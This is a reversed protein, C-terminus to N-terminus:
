KEASVRELLGQRLLQTVPGPELLRSDLRSLGTIGRISSTLFIEDAEDLDKPILDTELCDIGLNQAMEIVVERTVGPLCGSALPPIFLQGRNVLFVNATASECLQGATNLFLAEQFGLRRAHDLAVLNEAYSACKLGALPSNENRPWPSVCATLTESSNAVPLASMWLLRDAGPTLDDLPGSGATFTLRIKARGSSLDNLALLMKAKGVFDPFEFDWGLKEASSRLRSLHRDMFVPVGDLALITEFLGLGLITGRDM